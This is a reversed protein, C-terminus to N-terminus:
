RLQLRLYSLAAPFDPPGAARQATHRLKTCQANENPWHINLFDYRFIRWRFLFDQFFM